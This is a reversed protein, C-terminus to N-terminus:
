FFRSLLYCFFSIIALLAAALDIKRVKKHVTSCVNTYHCYYHIIHKGETRDDYFQQRVQFFFLAFVM